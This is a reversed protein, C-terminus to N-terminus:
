EPKLPLVVTGMDSPSSQVRISGSPPDPLGSTIEPPQLMRPRATQVNQRQQIAALVQREPVELSFLLHKGDAKFNMQDLASAGKAQTQVVDTFWHLSGAMDAVDKETRMNFDATIQLDPSLRLGATLSDLRDPWKLLANPATKATDALSAQSVIWADYEGDFRELGDTVVPALPLSQGRRRIAARVQALSGLVTISGELFAAASSGNGSSVIPVGLYTSKDGHLTHLSEIWAPDLLGRVIALGAADKGQGTGAFIVEQTYRTWDVGSLSTLPQQVDPRLNLLESKIQGSLAQGIPSSVLRAVDVYMVFRADPMILELMAPDAAAALVPLSLALVILKRWSPM